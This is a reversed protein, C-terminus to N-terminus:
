LYDRPTVIRVGLFPHLLRLFSRRDAVSVYRDFKPRALVTALEVLSEDSALIRGSTLIKDVAQAPLSAPMLLRSVLIDTDAVIREAETM